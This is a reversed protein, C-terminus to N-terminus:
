CDFKDRLYNKLDELKVVEQKMTDRDRVTVVGNNLTEDDVTVCYLTGISDQRRYRKGISATDDYTARFYKSLQAYVEKAKESHNKKILPFVAVKIPAIDKNFRMIERETGDELAEVDYSECLVALM